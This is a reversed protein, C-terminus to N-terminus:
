ATLMHWRPEGGQIRGRCVEDGVVNKGIVVLGEMPALNAPMMDYPGHTFGNQNVAEEPGFMYSRVLAAGKHTPRELDYGMLGRARIILSDLRELRDFTNQLDLEIEESTKMRALETLFRTHDASFPM